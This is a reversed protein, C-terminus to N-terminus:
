PASWDNAGPPVTGDDEVTTANAVDDDVVDADIVEVIAPSPSTEGPQHDFGITIVNPDRRAPPRGHRKPRVVIRLGIRDLEAQARRLAYRVLGPALQHHHIREITITMDDLTELDDNM